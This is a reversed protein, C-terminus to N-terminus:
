NAVPNLAVRATLSKGSYKIKVDIEDVNGSVKLKVPVKTEGGIKFYKDLTDKNIKQNGYWIEVKTGATENFGAATLDVTGTKEVEAANESAKKDDLIAEDLIDGIANGEADAKPEGEEADEEPAPEEETPDEQPVPEWSLEQTKKNLKLEFDQPEGNYYVKVPFKISAEADTFVIHGTDLETDNINELKDASHIWKLLQDKNSIKYNTSSDLPNLKYIDISVDNADRLEITVSDQGEKFEPKPFGSDLGIIYIEPLAAASSLEKDSASTKVKNEDSFGPGGRDAAALIILIVTLILCAAIAAITIIGRKSLLDAYWPEDVSRDAVSRSPIPAPASSYTATPMPSSAAEQPAPASYTLIDGFGSCGTTQPMPEKCYSCKEAGIPNNKGCKNCLM